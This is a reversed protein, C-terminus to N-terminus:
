DRFVRFPACATSQGAVGLRLITRVKCDHDRLWHVSIRLHGNEVGMDRGTAERGFLLTAEGIGEVLRQHLPEPDGFPIAEDYDTLLAFVLQEEVGSEHIDMAPSIRHNDGDQEAGVAGEFIFALDRCCNIAQHGIGEAHRRIIDEEGKNRNWVLVKGKRPSSCSASPTGRHHSRIYLM